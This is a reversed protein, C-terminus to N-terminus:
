NVSIILSAAPAIGFSESKVAVAVSMSLASVPAAVETFATPAAFASSGFLPSDFFSSTDRKSLRPSESCSKAPSFFDTPALPRM